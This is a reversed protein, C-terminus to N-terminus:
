EAVFFFGRFQDVVLATYYTLQSLIETVPARKHLTQIAVIAEVHFSGSAKVVPRNTRHELLVTGSHLEDVWVTVDPSSNAEADQDSHFEVACSHHIETPAVLVVSPIRHKDQNSLWQLLVLPDNDPHGSAESGDRHFPQLREILAAAEAPMQDLSRRIRDSKEFGSKDRCIPFHLASPTSPPDSVLRALAFALNDLASRLNHICEGLLLGWHYLPAIEEFEQLVLRFGLNSERLESQAV